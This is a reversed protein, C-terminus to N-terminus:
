KKLKKEVAKRSPGAEKQAKKVADVSVKLKKAVYDIEHKQKSVLKSDQKKKKPDDAM